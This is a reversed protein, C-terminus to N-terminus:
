AVVGSVIALGAFLLIDRWLPSVDVRETWGFLLALGGGLTMLLLVISDVVAELMGFRQKTVTYDAAKRHAALDIRAAFAAPVAERHATVFAIQRRSLWLRAALTTVLAAVFLLAFTGATVIPTFRERGCRPNARPQALILM